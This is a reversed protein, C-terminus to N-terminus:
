SKAPMSRRPPQAPRPRSSTTARRFPDSRSSRRAKVQPDLNVVMGRVVVSPVIEMVVDVNSFVQGARVKLTKASDVTFSEPHYTVAYDETTSEEGGMMKVARERLGLASLQDRYFVSVHYWGPTIDFIRYEGRDDTTVQKVVQITERSGSFHAAVLQM